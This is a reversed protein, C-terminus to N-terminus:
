KIFGRKSEGIFEILEAIEATQPVEIRIRNL